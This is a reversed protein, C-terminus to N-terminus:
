RGGFDGPHPRLQTEDWPRAWGAAALLRDLLRATFGWIFLGGAEFAPDLEGTIRRAVMFRNAPEVLDAVPVLAVRAVEGPDIPRVEHPRRWWALVPTVLFGSIPIYVPELDAIIRVSTPDLGVEETAERVAAADPSADTAEVSGGPFAVQGPHFRLTTARQILLVAPGDATDTFAMLVASPRGGAAPALDPAIPGMEAARRALDALRQALETV